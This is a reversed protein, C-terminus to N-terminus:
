ITWPVAIKALILLSIDGKSKPFSFQPSPCSVDRIISRLFRLMIPDIVLSIDSEAHLCKVLKPFEFPVIPVWGPYLIPVVLIIPMLAPIVYGSGDPYVNIDDVIRYRSGENPADRHIQIIVLHCTVRFTEFRKLWPISLRVFSLFDCYRSM